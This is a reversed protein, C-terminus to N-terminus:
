WCGSPKGFPVSSSGSGVTYRHQPLPASLRRISGTTFGQSVWKSSPPLSSHGRIHTEAKKGEIMRKNQPIEKIKGLVLRDYLENIDGYRNKNFIKALDSGGIGRNKNWETETSYLEENYKKM